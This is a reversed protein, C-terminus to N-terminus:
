KEVRVEFHFFEAWGIDEEVISHIDAALDEETMSEWDHPLLMKALADHENDIPIADLRIRPEKM